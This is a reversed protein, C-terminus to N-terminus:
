QRDADHNFRATCAHENELDGGGRPGGDRPATETRPSPPKGGSDSPMEAVLAIVYAMLSAGSTSGEFGGPLECLAGQVAEKEEDTLHRHYLKKSISLEDFLRTLLTTHYEMLFITEQVQKAVFIDHGTQDESM